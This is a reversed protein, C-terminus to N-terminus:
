TLEHVCRIYVLLYRNLSNTIIYDTNQHVTTRNTPSYKCTMSTIIRFITFTIGYTITFVYKAIKGGDITHSM